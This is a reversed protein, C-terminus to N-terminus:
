YPIVNRNERLLRARVTEAEDWGWPAGGAALDPRLAFQQVCLINGSAGASDAISVGTVTGAPSVATNRYLLATQCNTTASPKVTYGTSTFVGGGNWNTVAVLPLAQDTVSSYNAPTISAAGTNSSGAGTADIPTTPDAGSFSTCTWSVDGTGAGVTYAFALTAVSELAWFVYTKVKTSSIAAGILTWGSPTALTGATTGGNIGWECILVDGATTTPKTISLNGSSPNHSTGTSTAHFVVAM